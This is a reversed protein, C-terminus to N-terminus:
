VVLSYTNIGSSICQTGVVPAKHRHTKSSVALITVSRNALQSSWGAQNRFGYFKHQILIYVSVAHISIQLEQAHLNKLFPIQLNYIFHRKKLFDIRSCFPKKGWLTKHHNPQTEKKATVQIKKPTEKNKKAGQHTRTSFFILSWIGERGRTAKSICIQRSYCLLQYSQGVARM